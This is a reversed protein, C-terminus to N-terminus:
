ESELATRVAVMVSSPVFPKLIYDVAGELVCERVKEGANISSIMIVKATANLKRINKLTEVGDMKIMAIDCTVLSPMHKSYLAVGEQGDEAEGIVRLGIEELIKRLVVRVTKSDDIIIASKAAPGIDRFDRGSEDYTTMYPVRKEADWKFGSFAAEKILPFRKDGIFIASGIHATQEVKVSCLANFNRQRNLDVILTQVETKKKDLKVLEGRLKGMADMDDPRTAKITQYNKQIDELKRQIGQYEALAKLYERQAHYSYGVQVFTQPNATSGLNRVLVCDGAVTQGGILAGEEAIAVVRGNTYVKSNIIASQVMVGGKAEVTSNEIFKAFVVGGASVKGKDRTIIGRHVIVDREARVSSSQITNQVIVDGEAQVAFGDLISGKVYITGGFSVNGTEVGLDGDVVFVNDVRLVGNQVIPAGDIKAIFDKKNDALTVNAGAKLSAGLGWEGPLKEGHVTVGEEGQTAPEITAIVDGSKVNALSGIHDFDVKESGLKMSDLTGRADVNFHYHIEGNKGQTFPKGSAAVFMNDYEESNALFAEISEEPKVGHVVRHAEMAERVDQLTARKPDKVVLMAKFHDASVSIEVPSTKPNYM